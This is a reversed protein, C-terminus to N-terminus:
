LLLWFTPIHSDGLGLAQLLLFVLIVLYWVWMDVTKSGVGMYPWIVELGIDVGLGRELVGM